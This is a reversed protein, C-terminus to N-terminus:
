KLGTFSFVVTSFPFCSYLKRPPVKMETYLSRLTAMRLAVEGLGRISSAKFDLNGQMDSGKIMATFHFEARDYEGATPKIRKSVYSKHCNLFERASRLALSDLPGSADRRFLLDETKTSQLPLEELHITKLKARWHWIKFQLGWERDEMFRAFLADASATFIRAAVLFFQVRVTITKSRPRQSHSPPGRQTIGFSIMGDANSRLESTLKKLNMELVSSYSLAINACDLEKEWGAIHDSDIFLRQTCQNWRWLVKGIMKPPVKKEYHCVHKSNFKNKITSFTPSVAPINAITELIGKAFEIPILDKATNLGPNAESYPSRAQRKNHHAARHQGPEPVDTM